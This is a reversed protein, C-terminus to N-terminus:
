NENGPKQFVSPQFIRLKDADGQLIRGIFETTKFLWRHSRVCQSVSM